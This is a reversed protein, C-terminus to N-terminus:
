VSECFPNAATMVRMDVGRSTVSRIRANLVVGATRRLQPDAGPQLAEPDVRVKSTRESNTGQNAASVVNPLRPVRRNGRDIWPVTRPETATRNRFLRPMDFGTDNAKGHCRVPDSIAHLHRSLGKPIGRPIPRRKGSFVM